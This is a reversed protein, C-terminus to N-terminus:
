FGQADASPGYISPLSVENLRMYVSLQGRHHALHTLTDEIVVHRPAEWVVRAAVLLKWPTQLFEDTAGGLAARAKGVAEDHVQLLEQTSRVAPAQFGPGGPPNLDLEDLTIAHGLWTPMSAVLYALYGLPMSKPHPKWDPREVPVLELVRRSIAAERELQSAYLENLRM